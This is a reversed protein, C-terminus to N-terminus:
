GAHGASRAVGPTADCGADPARKKDIYDKDEIGHVKAVTQPLEAVYFDRASGAALGTVIAKQKEATIGLEQEFKHPDTHGRAPMLEAVQKIAAETEDFTAIQKGHHKLILREKNQGRGGALLVLGMPDLEFNTISEAIQRCAREFDERDVERVERQGKNLQLTNFIDQVRTTAEEVGLADGKNDLEDRLEIIKDLATKKLPDNKRDTAFTHKVFAAGFGGLSAVLGKVVTDSDNSNNGYDYRNPRDYGLEKDIMQQQQYESIAVGSKKQAEAFEKVKKAVEANRQEKYKWLEKEFDASSQGWKKKPPTDTHQLPNRNKDDYVKLAVQPIAAVGSAVVDTMVNQRTHQNIRAYEAQLVANDGLISLNGATPRKGLAEVVPKLRNALDKYENVRTFYTQIGGTIPTALTFAWGVGSGVRRANDAGGFMKVGYKEVGQEAFSRLYPQATNYLMDYMSAVSQPVDFMGFLIKVKKEPKGNEDDDGRASRELASTAKEMERNLDKLADKQSFEKEEGRTNSRRNNYDDNDWYNRAM